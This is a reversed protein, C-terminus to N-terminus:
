FWGNNVETKTEISNKDRLESELEDIQRQLVLKQLEVKKIEVTKIHDLHAELKKLQNKHEALITELHKIFLDNHRVIIDSQGRQIDAM